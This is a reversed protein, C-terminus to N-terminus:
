SMVARQALGLRASIKAVSLGHEALLEDHSGYCHIFEDQLTFADIRCAAAADWALQKVQM